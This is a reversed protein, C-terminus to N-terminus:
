KELMVAIVSPVHVKEIERQRGAGMLWRGKAM